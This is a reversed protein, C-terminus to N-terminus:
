SIFCVFFMGKVVDEDLCPGLDVRLLYNVQYLLKSSFYNLFNCNCYLILLIKLSIKIPM